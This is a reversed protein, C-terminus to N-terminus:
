LFCDSTASELNNMVTLLQSMMTYVLLSNSSYKIEYDNIMDIYKNYIDEMESSQHIKEMMIM